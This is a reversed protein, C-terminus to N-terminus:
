NVQNLTCSHLAWQFAGPTMQDAELLVIANPSSTQLWSTLLHGASVPATSALAQGSTSTSMFVGASAMNSVTCDLLYASGLSLGAYRLEVGGVGQSGTGQLWAGATCQWPGVCPGVSDVNFMQLGGTVAGSTAQATSPDLVLPTPMGTPAPSIVVHFQAAVLSRADALTAADLRAPPTLAARVPRVPLRTTTAAPFSVAARHHVADGRAMGM